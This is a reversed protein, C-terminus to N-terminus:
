GEKQDTINLFAAEEVPGFPLLFKDRSVRM